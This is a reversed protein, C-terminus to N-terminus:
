YADRRVAMHDSEGRLHRVIRRMQRRPRIPGTTTYLLTTAGAQVYTPSLSTSALYAPWIAPRLSSRRSSELIENWPLVYSTTLLSTRFAPVERPLCVASRTPPPAT